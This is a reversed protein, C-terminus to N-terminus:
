DPSRAHHESSRRCTRIAPTSRAIDTPYEIVVSKNVTLALDEANQAQLSFSVLALVTGFLAGRKMFSQSNRIM